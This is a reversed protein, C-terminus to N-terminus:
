ILTTFRHQEFTNLNLLTITDSSFCATDIDVKTGNAYFAPRCTAPNSSIEWVYKRLSRVPTHGHIMRGGTFEEQFHERSWILSDSNDMLHGAHSLDLKGWVDHPLEMHEPLADLQGIIKLGTRGKTAWDLLTQLGGNQIHLSVDWDWAFNMIFEYPNAAVEEYFFGEEGWHKRLAKAARVFLDEHNGKLYVFRDDNLLTEIIRYGDDRRDCADGLFICKWPKSRGNLWNLIKDFLEGHGHIDSFCFYDM